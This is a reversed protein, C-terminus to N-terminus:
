RWNNFVFFVLGDYLIFGRFIFQRLRLFMQIFANLQLSLNSEKTTHSESDSADDTNKSRKM